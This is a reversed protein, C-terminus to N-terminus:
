YYYGLGKSYRHQVTVPHGFLHRTSIFRGIDKKNPKSSQSGQVFINQLAPLVEMVSDGALEDLAPAVLRFTKESIVLDELSPFLSLLELWQINEVDDEWKRPNHIELIKLTPLSPLAAHYLQALSSLQWDSPKCSIHLWLRQSLTISVNNSRFRIYAHDPTKLQQRRSIFHRLHPTDFMLQNFFIINLEVLRPADITSLIGELYESDGKFKLWAFDPLIIRSLPPPHRNERDARSRPSRFLLDLRKLRTLTSLCAVMTESSIYGSYPIDWLTLKVLDTTSLLLKGLGPFPIGQLWLTRLHPASGGLFSDPLVPAMKNYSLLNLQELASFSKTAGIGIRKLLSDPVGTIHIGFVRDHEKLAAMLNNVGPLSSKYVHDASIYIPLPPWINLTKKVSRRNTSCVLRLDLHRPSAFVIYRWRKCVHVLTRWRNERGRLEFTDWYLIEQPRAVNVFIELLVDDPLVSITARLYLEDSDTGGL